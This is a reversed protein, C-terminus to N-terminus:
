TKSDSEKDKSSGMRKSDIFALVKAYMEQREEKTMGQHVIEHKETLAGELQELLRAAAIADSVKIQDLPMRELIKFYLQKRNEKKREQLDLAEVHRYLARENVQYQECITSIPVWKLYDAELDQLEPHQCIACKRRHRETDPALKTITLAMCNAGKIKEM